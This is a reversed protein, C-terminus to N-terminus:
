FNWFLIINHFEYKLLKNEMNLILKISYLSQYFMILNRRKEPINLALQIESVLVM